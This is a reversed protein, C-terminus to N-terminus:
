ELLPVREAAYITSRKEFDFDNLILWATECMWISGSKPLAVVYTDDDRGDFNLIREVNKAFHESVVLSRESLDREIPILGKRDVYLSVSQSPLSSTKEQLTYKQSCYSPITLLIYSFQIKHGTCVKTFM